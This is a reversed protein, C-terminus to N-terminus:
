ARAASAIPEHAPAAAPTAPSAAVMAASTISASQDSDSGHSPFSPPENEM